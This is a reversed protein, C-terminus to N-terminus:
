NRRYNHIFHHRSLGDRLSKKRPYYDAVYEFADDIHDLTVQQSSRLQATVFAPSETYRPTEVLWVFHGILALAIGFISWAIVRAARHPRPTFTGIVAIAIAPILSQVIPQPAFLVGGYVCLENIGHLVHFVFAGTVIAICPRAGNVPRNRYRLLALLTMVMILFLGSAHLHGEM